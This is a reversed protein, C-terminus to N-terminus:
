NEMCCLMLSLKENSQGFLLPIDASQFPLVKKLFPFSLFFFRKGSGLKRELTIVHDYSCCISPAFDFFIM